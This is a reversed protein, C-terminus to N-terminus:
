VHCRRDTNQLQFLEGTRSPALPDIHPRSGLVSGAMDRGRDIYGHLLDFRPRMSGLPMDGEPLTERLRVSDLGEPM